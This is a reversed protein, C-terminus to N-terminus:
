CVLRAGRYTNEIGVTFGVTSAIAYWSFSAEYLQINHRHHGHFVAAVLGGGFLGRRVHRPDNPQLLSRQVHFHSSLDSGAGPAM